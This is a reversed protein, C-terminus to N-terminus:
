CIWRLWCPIKLIQSGFNGLNELKRQQVVSFCAFSLFCIDAFVLRLLYGFPVVHCKSGVAISIKDLRADISQELQVQKQDANALAKEAKKAKTEASKAVKEASVKAANAGEWAERAAKLEAELASIRANAATLTAVICFFFFSFLLCDHSFVLVLLLLLVCCVYRSLCSCDGSDQHLEAGLSLFKQM